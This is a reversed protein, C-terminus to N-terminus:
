PFLRFRVAGLIAQVEVGEGLPVLCQRYKVRAQAATCFEGEELLPKRSEVVRPCNGALEGLGQLAQGEGGREGGLVRLIEPGVYGGGGSVPLLFCCDWLDHLDEPDIDAQSPMPRRGRLREWYSLLRLTVRREAPSTQPMALVM